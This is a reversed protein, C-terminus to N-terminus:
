SSLLVHGLKEYAGLLTQECQLALSSARELDSRSGKGALRDLKRYAVPPAPAVERGDRGREVAGLEPDGVIGAALPLLRLPKRQRLPAIGGQLPNPRDDGALRVSQEVRAAIWPHQELATVAAEVPLEVHREPLLRRSGVPAGPGSPEAKM